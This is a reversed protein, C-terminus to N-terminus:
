EMKESGYFKLICSNKGTATITVFGGLQSIWKSILLSIEQCNKLYAVIKCFCVRIEHVSVNSTYKNVALYFFNSPGWFAALFPLQVYNHLYFCLADSPMTMLDLRQILSIKIM